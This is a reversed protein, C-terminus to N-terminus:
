SSSAIALVRTILGREIAIRATAGNFAGHPSELFALLSWGDRTGLASSVKSIHPWINPDFQWKPVRFGRGARLGICRGM